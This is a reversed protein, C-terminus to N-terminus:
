RRNGTLGRILGPNRRIINMVVREGDPSDVVGLAMKPDTVNVIKVHGRGGSDGGGSDSMKSTGSFDKTIKITGPKQRAISEVDGGGRYDLMGGGGMRAVQSPNTIPGNVGPIIAPVADGGAAGLSQSVTQILGGVLNRVMMKEIDMMIQNIFSEWDVKAGTIFDHFIKDLGNTVGEVISKISKGFDAMEDIMKVLEKNLDYMQKGGMEFAQYKEYREPAKTLLAKYAEEARRDNDLQREKQLKRTEAVAITQKMIEIQAADADIGDKKLKEIAERLRKDAEHATNIEGALDREKELVRVMAEFPHLADQENAIIMSLVEQREKMTGIGAAAAKNLIEMAKAIKLHAAEVPDAQGRLKDYAELLKEYEKRAAANDAPIYKGAMDSVSSKAKGSVDKHAAADELFKDMAKQANAITGVVDKQWDEKFKDHVADTAGNLPNDFSFDALPVHPGPVAQMRQTKPDFKFTGLFMDSARNVESAFQNILEQFVKAVAQAVQIFASGIIVPIGGFITVISDGLFKFMGTAAGVFTAIFLLVSRLNLEIKDGSLGDDFAAVLQNWGDELLMKIASGVEKIVIWLENLVDKITTAGDIGADMQDGFQRFIAVVAVLAYLLATFPNALAAAGLATLGRIAAQVAQVAFYVGMFQSVALIIKGVMDFHNAVFVLAAALSQLVGTGKGAEGFFLIAQNRLMVFSQSITPVTLAFQRELEPAAEKFADVIQRANIKGETGFQRLVGRTVGMHKAIVDAVVPLEELVARLEDGRLTGSAMGQSLQILGAGAEATTAGSVIVAQNLSKTFALLEKQSYGLENSNRAMRAYMVATTEWSSRTDQAIKFTEKTVGNLNAQDSSLVRLRNQITQYTDAMQELDRIVERIAYFQFVKTLISSLQSAEDKVRKLGGVADDSASKAGSADVKIVIKFEAAM